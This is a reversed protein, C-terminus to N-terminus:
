IAMTREDPSEETAAQRWLADALLDLVHEPRLRARDESREVPATNM